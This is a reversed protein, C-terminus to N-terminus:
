KEVLHNELLDWRNKYESIMEIRPHWRWRRKIGSKFYENDFARYVVESPVIFVDPMEDGAGKLDIFTFFLDLKNLKASREGVDWEYHDPHKEGKKGRYRLARWATKVQVSATAAGDPLGVLIDVNPANGFTPAAHFGRAALQSAVFYVGATGILIGSRKTKGM